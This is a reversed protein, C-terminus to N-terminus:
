LEVGEINRKLMNWNDKLERETFEFEWAKYQPVPPQWNGCVFLVYLRCKTLQLMYCYAMMQWKYTYFTEIPRKSSRWTVKFEMLCCDDSDVADPSGFVGDFELEGPRQYRPAPFMVEALIREWLRGVSAFMGLDADDFSNGKQLGSTTVIYQIIQSVHLGVSRPQLQEQSIHGLDAVDVTLETLRMHIVTPSFPHSHSDYEDASM